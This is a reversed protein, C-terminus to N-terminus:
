RRVPEPNGEAQMRRRWVLWAAAALIFLWGGTAALMRTDPAVVSQGALAQWILLLTIGLYGIGAILVLRTRSRADVRRRKLFWATLPLVQLAHLGVFHAVRLDGGETSWGLFPLGPGGDEVGVSHAGSSHPLDAADAAAQAPSTQGTMLFGTMMGVLSVLVALRLSWALARDPLKQFLLRIGVLLNMVAVLVIMGGMINFVMADFPTTNNFHSTTGRLVQMAILAMEATLALATLTAVTQVVRRWGQVHILLWLFSLSYISISIAFKLPKIWAPVGTIVQPDVFIAVAFIPILALHLLVALTLPWNFDWAQRLLRRPEADSLAPLTHTSLTSQMPKEKYTLSSRVCVPVLM